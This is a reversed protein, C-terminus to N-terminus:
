DQIAVVSSMMPQLQASADRSNVTYEAPIFIRVGAAIAADIMRPQSSIASMAVTSIIADQNQLAEVLPADSDYDVQQIKIEPPLDKLHTADRTLVTVQYGSKSLGLLIPLGIRGAQEDTLILADKRPGFISVM